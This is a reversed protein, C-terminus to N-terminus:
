AIALYIYSSGSANVTGVTTGSISFGVNLPGILDANAESDSGGFQLYPDSGANIGRATDFVVWPRGGSSTCKILVFRAGNTFGCDIGQFAGTGTYSGVKSIGPLSAFLYAIYDNGAANNASNAYVTFSYANPDTNNWYTSNTAAAAGSDIFLAQTGGLTSSYTIWSGTTTRNKIIMLEPAVTLGHDVNNVNGTGEYAVVDLFGAARTFFHDVYNSGSQNLQDYQSYRIGSPEDWFIKDNYFTSEGSTSDPSMADSGQLRSSMVPSNGSTRNKTWLLDAVRNTGSPISTTANVGARAVPGFVDTGATPPKHPRRIAIYVYTANSTIDISFGSPTPSSIIGAAEANNVEARLFSSDNVNPAIWDRMTDVLYWSQDGDTRKILAFQAEFGLDVAAKGTGDTTFTGCKIVSESEDAGFGGDDSGFLYAVYTVLNQNAGYGAQPTPPQYVTFTTTNAGTCGVRESTTSSAGTSNLTLTRSSFVANNPGRSNGGDSGHHVMWNGANTVNKIIVCAPTIGLDHPIVQTTNGDGVYTVVTFFKPAKRFTWSAYNDGTGNVSSNTGLRFGDDRFLNILNSDTLQNADLSCRLAKDGGRVTDILYHHSIGGREKIWVLGGENALDIGNQVTKWQTSPAADYVYASFVDEVYVPSEGGAAAGAAAKKLNDNLM